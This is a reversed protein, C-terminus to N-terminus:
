QKYWRGGIKIKTREGDYRADMGVGDKKKGKEKRKGKEFV